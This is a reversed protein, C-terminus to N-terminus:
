QTCAESQVWGVVKAPVGAAIAGAPIDSNVLANAAIVAGAGISVGKLVVVNMGLWVDDAIYIPASPGAAGEARNQADLPHHDGDCIVVNAGCLVRNGLQIHQQAVISVASFGCHDGIQIVANKAASLSCPGAQILPNTIKLSRFTAHHGIQIRAQPHRRISSLGFHKARGGIQVRWWWCRLAMLIGSGWRLLLLWGQHVAYPLKDRFNSSFEIPKLLLERQAERRNYAFFPASSM